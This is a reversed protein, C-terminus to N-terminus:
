QVENSKPNQTKIEAYVPWHDSVGVSGYGNRFKAPKGEQDVQYVSSNILRLSSSDLSWISNGEALSKSFLLVDFFSWTQDYKYYSSGPQDHLGVLFSVAFSKGLLDRFYRKKWEEKSTINFDGGVVIPIEPPVHSTAELLTEAAVRRHASPAGQSPFHVAFVALPKGDPLRLRAELIGRTPKAENPDIDQGKYLNVTHLKAPETQPLRSLIATDIGREDPGEILILTQYGMKALYKDRWQRLVSENEVEQLFLIDPGYGDNVQELVDTLRRMKRDLVKQSWDKTLCEEIQYKVFFDDMGHEERQLGVLNEKNKTGSKKDHFPQNQVRCKNKMVESQKQEVPLFSEDNKVPDDQTDFLNEVNFTLISVKEAFLEPKRNISTCSALVLIPALFFLYRM